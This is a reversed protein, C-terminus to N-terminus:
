IYQVGTQGLPQRMHNGCEHGRLHYARRSICVTVYSVMHDKEPYKAGKRVYIYEMHNEILDRADELTAETCKDVQMFVIHEYMRASWLNVKQTVLFKESLSFFYGYAPYEKANIAVPRYIDFSGSLIGLMKELYDSSQM